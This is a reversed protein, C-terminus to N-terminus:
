KPVLRASRRPSPNKQRASASRLSFLINRTPADHLEETDRPGKKDVSDHSRATKAGDKLALPTIANDSAASSPTPGSLDFNGAIRCDASSADTVPLEAVTQRAIQSSLRDANCNDEEMPVAEMLVNEKPTDNTGSHGPQVGSTGDLMEKEVSLPFSIENSDSIVEYGPSFTDKNTTAQISDDAAPAHNRESWVSVGVSEQPLVNNCLTGALMGLPMNNQVDSSLCSSHVVPVWEQSGSVEAFTGPLTSASSNSNVNITDAPHPGSHSNYGDTSHPGLSSNTRPAISDAARNETDVTISGLSSITNQDNKGVLSSISDSLIGKESQHTSPPINLGENFSRVWSAPNFNLDVVLDLGEDESMVFFQFPAAKTNTNAKEKEKEKEKAKAKANANANASIENTSGIAKVVVNAGVKTCSHPEYASQSKANQAIGQGSCKGNNLSVPPLSMRAGIDSQLAEDIQTQLGKQHKVHLRDDGGRDSYSDRKHNEQVCRSAEKINSLVASCTSPSAQTSGIIKELEPGSNLKEKELLMALESALEWRSKNAPLNYQKCLSQLNRFSLSLLRKQCEGLEM